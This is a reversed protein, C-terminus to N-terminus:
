LRDGDPVAMTAIVTGAQVAAVECWALLVADEAAVVVEDEAFWGVLRCLEQGRVVATGAEVSPVLLGGLRARPGAARRLRAQGADPVPPHDVLGLAGLVRLTADVMVDVASASHWRRPGVELTLAPIGLLNVAAGALSRDLGFQVYADDPYEAVVMLGAGRALSLMREGLARRREWSLRVPRDLIIYPVANPADSHLDVLVDPARASLDKWIASALRHATGGRAAGPFVRNLDIDDPPVTRSMQALGHPNCSPYLVVTGSRLVTRLRRDLERCAHVGTAEDGHVNATVAVV